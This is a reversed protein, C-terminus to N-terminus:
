CGSVVIRAASLSPRESKTLCESVFRSLGSTENDSTVESLDLRQVANPDISDPSLNAKEFASTRM